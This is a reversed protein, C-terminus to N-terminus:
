KAPLAGTSRTAQDPPAPAGGTHDGVFLHDAVAQRHAADPIEGNFFGIDHEGSRAIQGVIKRHAQAAGVLSDPRKFLGNGAAADRNAVGEM